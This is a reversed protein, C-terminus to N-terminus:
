CDFCPSSMFALHAMNPGGEACISVGRFFTKRLFLIKNSFLATTIFAHFNQSRIVKFIGTSYLAPTTALLEIELEGEDFRVNPKGSYPKGIMKKWHSECNAGAQDEPITEESTGPGKRSNGASGHLRKEKVEESVHYFYQGKGRGLNHQGQSVL